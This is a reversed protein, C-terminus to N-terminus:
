RLASGSFGLVRLGWLLWLKLFGLGRFMYIGREVFRQFRQFGFGSFTYIGREVFRQFRQFGLGGFM